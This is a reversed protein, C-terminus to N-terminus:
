LDLTRAKEKAQTIGQWIVLVLIIFAGLYFTHQLQTADDLLFYALLMGYVPELNFALMVTFATVQRLSRLVLVYGLTTCGLALLTLHWWDMGVPMQLPLGTTLLLLSLMLWGASLEVGTVFLADGTQGWKRNFVGFLALLAASLLGAWLGALKSTEFGRTLIWVALVMLLSLMLDSKSIKGRNAVSEFFVAFVSATSLTIVAVSANAWKVAAFFAVWHWAVLIGIFSWRFLDRRRTNVMARRWRVLLMLSAVTLLLRWWVLSMAELTIWHGLIAAWGFLIVASQLQVQPQQWWM